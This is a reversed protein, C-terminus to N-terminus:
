EEIQISRYSSVQGLITFDQPEAAGSPAGAPMVLTPGVDMQKISRDCGSGKSNSGDMAKLWAAGRIQSQSIQVVKGPNRM